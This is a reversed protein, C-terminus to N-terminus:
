ALRMEVVEIEGSFVNSGSGSGASNIFPRVSEGAKLLLIGRQMELTISGAWANVLARGTFDTNSSLGIGNLRAYSPAATFRYTILSIVGEPATYINSFYQFGSASASATVSFSYKIPNAAFNLFTM